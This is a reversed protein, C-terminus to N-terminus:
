EYRLAILPDVRTARRAPIFSAALASLMLVGAVLAYTTVDTATVGFLMSKLYRSLAFAGVVGIVIGSVSLIAAQQLVMGLTQSASAGLAMRIGIEHTRQSVAFSMVGYIGVVSLILALAAFLALLTMQFRQRAISSGVVQDMTRLNAIPNTQEVKLAAARLQPGLAGMSGGATKVVFTKPVVQNFLRNINDPVQADPIYITVPADEDLGSEKVDGVVGVIVRQQDAFAPGMMKGILIQEGIPNKDKLYKRRFADNVLAVPQAGAVDSDRFVRGSKLPTSMVEFFRPTVARYYADGTASNAEKPPNSALDFPLDPGQELPLNTVSAAAVVGPVASFRELLARNLNWIKATTDYSKGLSMQLTLVNQPDFGPEVTRLKQFSQILLAAGILLVVSLAMEGVVLLGRVRGRGAGASTGRGSEKLAENLDLRSTQLAPLIGFLVGTLISVGLTFALVRWDMEITAMRPLNAPSAALLAKMGFYAFVLGLVGGAGALLVSETLLQRVLRWRGAGLSARIAIEKTRSTARALLLNAVNTCAILLVLGVAGMLLLLAPRVDRVMHESYLRAGVSEKSGKDLLNPYTQFFRQGITEMERQAAEVTVGPKLRGVIMYAHARDQPSAVARLPFLVEAEVQHYFDAPLVGVIEYPEANFTAARGIINPDSNFRRKWLGHSIVAVNASGPKDEAATFGRGLAPSIRFVRFFEHSVMMSKVREPEGAGSLNAGAGLFDSASVSEFSQNNDRWFLFKTLSVSNGTGQPYKRTLQVLRDPEPYPLPRLLVANVVSFIACNAGIGLALALVAVAAFGPSSAITRLAYRLDQLLM